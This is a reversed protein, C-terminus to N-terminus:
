MINSKERGFQEEFLISKFRTIIIIKYLLSLILLYTVRNLINIYIM